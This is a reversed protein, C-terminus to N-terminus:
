TSINFVHGKRMLHYSRHIISDICVHKRLRVLNKARDPPKYHTETQFHMTYFHLVRSLQCWRTVIGRLKLFALNPYLGEELTNIRRARPWSICCIRAFITMKTLCWFFGDLFTSVVSRVCHTCNKVFNQRLTTTFYDQAPWSWSGYFAIFWRISAIWILENLGLSAYLRLYILWWQNLYNPASAM